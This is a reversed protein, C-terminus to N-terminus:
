AAQGHGEKSRDTASAIAPHAGDAGGTEGAHGQVGGQLQAQEYDSESEPQYHKLAYPQDMEWQHTFRGLVKLKRTAPNFGLVELHIIPIGPLVAKTRIFHRRSM